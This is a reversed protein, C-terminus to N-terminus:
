SVEITKDAKPLNEKNEEFGADVFEPKEQEVPDQAKAQDRRIAEVCQALNGIARSIPFGIQELMSVPVNIDKLMNITIELAQEVTIQNEM